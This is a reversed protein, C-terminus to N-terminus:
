QFENVLMPGAHSAQTPRGKREGQRKGLGILVFNDPAQWMVGRTRPAAASSTGAPMARTSIM